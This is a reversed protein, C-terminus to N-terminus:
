PWRWMPVERRKHSVGARTSVTEEEVGEEEERIVLMMLMVMKIEMKMLKEVVVREVM